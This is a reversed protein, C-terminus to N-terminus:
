SEGREKVAECQSLAYDYYGQMEEWRCGLDCVEGTPSIWRILEGNDFYLRYEDGNEENIMYIFYVEGNDYYWKKRCNRYFNVSADYPKDGQSADSAEELLKLEGDLYYATASTGFVVEEMQDFAEVTAYYRERISKIKANQAEHDFGEPLRLLLEYTREETYSIGAMARFMPAASGGEYAMYTKEMEAEKEDIWQLEEAVLATKEEQPLLVMLHDYVDNLLLDWAQYTEVYGQSLQLQSQWENADCYALEENLERAWDLYLDYLRVREIKQHYVSGDYEAADCTFCGESACYSWEYVEGSDWKIMMSGDTFEYTFESEVGKAGLRGVLNLVRGTGDPYFEFFQDTQVSADWFCNHLTEACISGEETEGDLNETGDTAISGGDSESIPDSHETTQKATESGRDGYKLVAVFILTVCAVCVGIVLAYVAKRLNAYQKM